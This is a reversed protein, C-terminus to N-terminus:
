PNTTILMTLPVEICAPTVAKAATNGANDVRCNDAAAFGAAAGDGPAFSTSGSTVPTSVATSVCAGFTGGGIVRFFGALTMTFTSTLSTVFRRASPTSYTNQVNPPSTGPLKM